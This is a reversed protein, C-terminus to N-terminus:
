CPASNQASRIPPLRNGPRSIHRPWPPVVPKLPTLRWFIWCGQVGPAVCWMIRLGILRQREAVESFLDLGKLQEYDILRARIGDELDHCNYAIRDALDAIQGEITPRPPWEDRDDPRDYPSSHKMLGLRTEFMLNLGAFDPYPHELFDLGFLRAIIDFGGCEATLENLVAGAHGFPPHGLDHWAFRRTLIEVM